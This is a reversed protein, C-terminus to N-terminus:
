SLPHQALHNKVLAAYGERQGAQNPHFTYEVPLSRSYDVNNFYDPATDSVDRCLEHGKFPSTDDTASVFRFTGGIANVEKQIAANLKKTIDLIAAQEGIGLWACNVSSNKYWTAPLLQPYGLVLVTANAGQLTLRTKIATFATRVQLPVTSLNSLIKQYAAGDCSPALPSACATAFGSFDADNGGITLTVLRTSSTIREIQPDEGNNKATLAVAKAGSCAGFGNAGLDLQLGPTQAVLRSYALTSRHCTDKGPINTEPEFPEVGEGSSYSDGLAVYGSMTPPLTTDGLLKGRPYDMGVTGLAIRHILTGSGHTMLLYINGRSLAISSWLGYHVGNQQPLVESSFVKKLRGESDYLLVATQIPVSYRTRVYQGAIVVNGYDDTLMRSMGFPEDYGTTYPINVSVLTRIASPNALFLTGARTAQNAVYVAAASNPTIQIAEPYMCSNNSPLIMFTPKVGVRYFNVRRYNQGGNGECSPSSYDRSFTVIDGNEGAVWGRPSDDTSVTFSKNTDKQGVSNFYDFENPDTYIIYGNRYSTAKITRPDGLRVVVQVKVIGTNADLVVLRVQRNNECITSMTYYVTNLAPAYAPPNNVIPSNDGACSTVKHTWVMGSSGDSYVYGTRSGEDSYSITNGNKTVVSSPDCVKHASPVTYSLNGDSKYVDTRIGCQSVIVGGDTLTQIKQDRSEVALPWTAVTSSATTAPIVLGACTLAAVVLTTVVSRLM